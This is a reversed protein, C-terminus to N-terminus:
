GKGYLAQAPHYMVWSAMVYKDNSEPVCGRHTHTFGCPALVLTGQKARVKTDQYYFETEGGQEVDNLYLLWLLVRHLSRQSQDSPHPFHESHWHHYGGSGKTYRQLNVEDLRYIAQILQSIQQDTMNGIDDHRINRLKGSQPDQMSPSIAGTIIFPYARAYAIMGKLIAQSIQNCEAQWSPQRSIYLDLSDKKEKDVGGGTRGPVTDPSAEFKDMLSQCFEPPLANDLQFIFPDM